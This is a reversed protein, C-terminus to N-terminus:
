VHYINLKEFLSHHVIKQIQLMYSKLILIPSLYRAIYESVYVKICNVIRLSKLEM